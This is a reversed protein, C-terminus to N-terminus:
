YKLTTTIILNREYISEVLKLNTIFILIFVLKQLLEFILVDLVYSARKMVKFIREHAISRLMFGYTYKLFTKEPYGQQYINRSCRPKNKIPAM